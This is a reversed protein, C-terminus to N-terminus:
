TGENRTINKDRKYNRNAKWTSFSMKKRWDNSCYILADKAEYPLMKHDITELRDAQESLLLKGALGTRDLRLSLEGLVCKVMEFPCSHRGSSVADSNNIDPPWFDSDIKWDGDGNKVAFTMVMWLIQEFCYRIQGPEYWVTGPCEGRDKPLCKHCDM